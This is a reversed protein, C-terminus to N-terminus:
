NGGQELQELQKAIRTNINTIEDIIEILIKKADKEEPNDRLFKLYKDERISLSVLHGISEKITDKLENM